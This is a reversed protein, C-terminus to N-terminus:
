FVNCVPLLNLKKLTQRSINFHLVKFKRLILPLKENDDMDLFRRIFVFLSMYRNMYKTAVGRFVALQTKILSHVSNLTNLHEVQNYATYT